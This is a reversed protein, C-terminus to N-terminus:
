CGCLNIEERRLQGLLLHQVCKLILIHPYCSDREGESEGKREGNWGRLSFNLCVFLYAMYIKHTFNIFIHNSLKHQYEDLQHM